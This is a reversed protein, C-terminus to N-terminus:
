VISQIPVLRIVRVHPREHGPVGQEVVPPRRTVDFAALRGSSEDDVTTFFLPSLNLM